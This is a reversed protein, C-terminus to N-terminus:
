TALLWWGGGEEKVVGVKTVQSKKSSCKRGYDGVTHKKTRRPHEKSVVMDRFFM